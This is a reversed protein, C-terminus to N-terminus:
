AAWNAPLCAKSSKRFPNDMSFREPDNQREIWPLPEFRRLMISRRLPGAANVIELSSRFKSSAM